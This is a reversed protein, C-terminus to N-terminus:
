ASFRGFRGAAKRLGALVHTWGIREKWLKGDLEVKFQDIRQPCIYLVFEHTTGALLDTYLLKRVPKSYDPDNFYEPPPEQIRNRAKAAHCNASHKHTM